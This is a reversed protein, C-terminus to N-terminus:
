PCAAVACSPLARRRIVVVLRAVSQRPARQDDAQYVGVQPLDPLARGGQVESGGEVTDEEHGRNEVLGPLNLESYGVQFVPDPLLGAEGLALVLIKSFDISCRPDSM